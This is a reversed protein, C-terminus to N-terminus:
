RKVDIRYKFMGDARFYIDIIDYQKVTKAGYPNSKIREGHVKSYRWVEIEGEVFKEDPPGFRLLIDSKACGVMPKLKGDIEAFKQEEQMAACGAYIVILFIALIGNSCKLRNNM